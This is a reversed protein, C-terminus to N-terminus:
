FGEGIGKFVRINLYARKLAIAGWGGKPGDEHGTFRKKMRVWVRLM